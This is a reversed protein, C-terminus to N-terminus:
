PGSLVLQQKMAGSCGVTDTNSIGASPSFDQAYCGAILSGDVTFGFSEAYNASGNMNVTLSSNHTGWATGRVGGSDCLLPFNFSGMNVIPTACSAVAVATNALVSAMAIFSAITKNIM